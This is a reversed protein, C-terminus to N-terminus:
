QARVDDGAEARTRIRRVLLLPLRMLFGAVLRVHMSALLLNDRLYRYHSVGGEDARFYRV